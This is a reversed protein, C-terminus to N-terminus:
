AVTNPMTRLRQSYLLGVDSVACGIHQEMFSLLRKISVAGRSFVSFNAGGTALTAGTPLGRGTAPAPGHHERCVQRKPQFSFSVFPDGSGAYVHKEFLIREHRHTYCSRV